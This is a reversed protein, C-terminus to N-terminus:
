PAIGVETRLRPENAIINELVTNDQSGPGDSHCGLVLVGTQPSRQLAASIIKADHCRELQASERTRFNPAAEEVHKRPLSGLDQRSKVM